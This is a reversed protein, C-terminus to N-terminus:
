QKIGTAFDHRIVKRSYENRRKTCIAKSGALLEDRRAQICQIEKRIEAIEADVANGAQRIRKRESKISALMTDIADEDLHQYSENIVYSDEKDSSDDLDSDFSSGDHGYIDSEFNGPAKSLDAGNWDRMKPKELPAYVTKGAAM